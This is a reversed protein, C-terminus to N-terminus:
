FIVGLPCFRNLYLGGHIEEMNTLLKFATAYGFPVYVIGHHALTSM